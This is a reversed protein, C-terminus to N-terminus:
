SDMGIGAVRGQEDFRVAIVYDTAEDPLSFDLVECDDDGWASALVLSALVAEPSPRETGLLAQWEAPALEELHHFVFLSVPADRDAPDFAAAIAQRALSERQALLTASM